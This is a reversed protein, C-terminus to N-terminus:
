KIEKRKKVIDVKLEIGSAYALSIVHDAVVEELNECMNVNKSKQDALIYESIANGKNKNAWEQVYERM